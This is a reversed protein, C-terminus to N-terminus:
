FRIEIIWQLRIVIMALCQTSQLQHWTTTCVVVTIFIVYVFVAVIKTIFICDSQVVVAVVIFFVFFPVFFFARWKEVRRERPTSKPRTRVPMAMVVPPYRGWGTEMSDLKFLVCSAEM